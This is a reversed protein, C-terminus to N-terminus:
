LWWNHETRLINYYIRSRQQIHTCQAHNMRIHFTRIISVSDDDNRFSSRSQFHMDVMFPASNLHISPTISPSRHPFELPDTHSNTFWHPFLHIPTPICYLSIFYVSATQTYYRFKKKTWRCVLFFCFFFMFLVTHGQPGRDTTKRTQIFINIFLSCSMGPTAPPPPPSSSTFVFRYKWNLENSSYKQARETRKLHCRAITYSIYM